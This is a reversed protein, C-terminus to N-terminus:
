FSLVKRLGQKEDRLAAQRVKDTHCILSRQAMISFPESVAHSVM